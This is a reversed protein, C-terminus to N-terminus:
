AVDDRDERVASSSSSSSSSSEDESVPGTPTAAAPAALEATEEAELRSSEELLAEAAVAPAAATGGAEVRALWERAEEATEAAGGAAVSELHDGTIAEVDRGANHASRIDEATGTAPVAGFYGFMRREADAELWFVAQIQEPSFALPPGMLMERLETKKIEIETVRNMAEFHGRDGEPFLAFYASLRDPDYEAQLAPLSVATAVASALVEAPTPIPNGDAAITARTHSNSSSPLGLTPTSEAPLGLSHTPASVSRSVRRRRAPPEPEEDEDLDVPVPLRVLNIRFAAPRARALPVPPPVVVAPEEDSDVQFRKEFPAPRRPTLPFQTQLHSPALFDTRTHRGKRGHAM